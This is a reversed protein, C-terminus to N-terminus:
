SADVATRASRRRARVRRYLVIFVVLPVAFIFSAVWMFWVQGFVAFFLSGVTLVAALFVFTLYRDGIDSFPHLTDRPDPPTDTVPEWIVILFTAVPGLVLSSIFWALRSRNKQEALGANVLALVLWGGGNFLWPDPQSPQSVIQSVFTRM